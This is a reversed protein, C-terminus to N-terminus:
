SKDDLLECFSLDVYPVKDDDKPHFHEIRALRREGNVCWVLKLDENAIFNMILDKRIYFLSRSNSAADGKYAINKAALEGQSDYYELSAPDFVLNLKELLMTTLVISHVGPLACNETDWSYEAVTLNTGIYIMKPEEYTSVVKTDSISITVTGDENKKYEFEPREIKKTESGVTIEFRADSGLSSLNSQYLEGAYKYHTQELSPRSVSGQELKEYCSKLKEISDIDLLFAKIDVYFSRDLAQSEESIYGNLLVWSGSFDGISDVLTLASLEPLRSRSVWDIAGIDAEGLYHASDSPKEEIPESFSPDIDVAFREGWHGLKDEDRLQGAMEYYAIWSYKKGYRQTKAHGQRGYYHRSHSDISKEIEAFKESSWGLNEVRWRIKARVDQYIPQDYDYNGREPVLRGITYNEFDMRFPSEAGVVRPEEQKVEWLLRPISQFPHTAEAVQKKTLRSSSVQGVLGIIKSAYDRTLLHTTSFSASENFMYGYLQEAFWEVDTLVEGKCALFMVVGYSAALLRESVYRDNIELSEVTMKFLQKTAGRGYWYLAKSAYDRLDMCTTTLLWSVWCARLRDGETRSSIDAKWRSELLNVERLADDHHARIFETWSLDRDSATLEKLLSNLFDANLPHAGSSRVKKLRLFISPEIKCSLLQERYAVTTKACFNDTDIVTSLELIVGRYDAPVVEWFQKSTVQPMLAVLAHVIDQSLEHSSNSDGFLMDLCRQENVWSADSDSKNQKLLADAIFFGGLRDYVPTIVYTYPEDGPDRFLIGEQALLNVINSEWAIGQQGITELFLEESIYRQGSEWLLIGLKYISKWVDRANLLPNLNSLESIRQAAYDIQDHFLTTISAPFRDVTVVKKADRNTAECFVRLNLPHNFFDEPVQTLDAEIKYHHFYSIVADITSDNFGNCELRVCDEPLAMQAFTERNNGIDHRRVGHIYRAKEGTRLTCVLLVNPYDRIQELATELLSKWERPDEAENLGDIVIPLRCNDRYAAADLAALLAPFNPLNKGHFSIRQVLDDLSYGRRLQRGHLLIGAPRDSQQATIEAAMQTKGGGADALVAVFSLSIREIVDQLLNKFDKVLAIANTLEIALSLNRRRIQRLIYYIHDDVSEKVHELTGKISEVDESSLNNKFTDSYNAFEACTKAFQNLEISWEAYISEIASREITNSLLLLSEVTNQIDDWASSEGLFQRIDKEADVQQHVEKIWRKQIPAVSERHQQELVEPTLALEGFYTEKLLLAAGNLSGEIDDENWLHLQYSYEKQLGYFWDQDVKALTFPTWLIWITLGSVHEDTKKLSHIIQRRSNAVLEGNAKRAFWKCQWGVKDDQVGLESCDQNLQIYYEVGPQNKRGILPGYRGFRRRVISRCLKEFNDTDAGSLNNFKEWDLM